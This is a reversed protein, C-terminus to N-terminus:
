MSIKWLLLLPDNDNNNVINYDGGSGCFDSNSRSDNNTLRSAFVNWMGCDLTFSYVCVCLDILVCNFLFRYFHYRSFSVFRFLLIHCISYPVFCPFFISAFFLLVFSKKNVYICGCGCSVLNLSIFLLINISGM